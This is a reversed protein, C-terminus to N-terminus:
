ANKPELGKLTAAGALFSSLKTSSMAVDTTAKPFTLRKGVIEEM